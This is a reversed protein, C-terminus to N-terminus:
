PFPIEWSVVLDMSFLTKEMVYCGFVCSLCRKMHCCGLRHRSLAIVYNCFFFLPLFSTLFEFEGINELHESGVLVDAAFANAGETQAGHDVASDVNSSARPIVGLDVM